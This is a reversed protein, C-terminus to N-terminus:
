DAPLQHRRLADQASLLLRDLAPTSLGASQAARCAYGLFYSLETRRRAHLDQRTSSSNNATALIVAHVQEALNADVGQSALVQQLEAICQGLWEGAREPVEGNRCDYILTFPNIACNVALKRWLVPLIDHQWTTSISSPLDNLWDPPATGPRLPGVNNHGRGAWILEHESPRWAGDTVSVCYIRCDTFADAIAQQSGLGNQLLFLAAGPQLRPRLSEVAALAAHAKTAVILNEIPAPTDPTEIALSLTHKAAGDDFVLRNGNSNWQRLQSENRVILRYDIGAQQLRAAWLLGLSGAGLIHLM